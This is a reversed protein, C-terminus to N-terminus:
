EAATSADTHVVSGGSGEAVLEPVGDGTVDGLGLPGHLERTTHWLLAPAAGGTLGRLLYIRRSADTDEPDSPEQLALIDDHGDGDADAVSVLGAGDLISSEDGDLLTISSGGTVVEEDGDGDLDGAVVNCGTESCGVVETTGDGDTDAGTVALVSGIDGSAGSASLAGGGYSYASWSGSTGAVAVSGPDFDGCAVMSGAVLTSADINLGGDEDLSMRSLRYTSGNSTITYIITQGGEDCAALSEATTDGEVTVDDGSRPRTEGDEVVFNWIKLLVEGDEDELSLLDLLGDDDFDRYLVPGSLSVSYSRYSWSLSDWIENAVTGSLWRLDTTFIGVDFVGDGTADVATIPGVETTTSHNGHSFDPDGETGISRLVDLTGPELVVLEEPAAGNMDARAMEISAYPLPWKTVDDGMTYFTLDQSSAPPGVLILDDTGNADLDMMPWLVTGETAAADIEPWAGGVWGQESLSYRRISGTIESLVSIDARGDDGEDSAAVGWLPFDVELVSSTTFGWAGDGDLVEVGGAIEGTSAIALDALRDGNLDSVAIGAVTGSKPTWAAGWTYGGGARGRLALAHSSNWVVLDLVGDADIHQSWMGKVPEDLPLAAVRWAAQGAGTPVWWIESGRAVASGGTGSRAFDPDEIDEPIVAGHDLQFGPVAGSVAYGVGDAGGGVGASTGSVAITFREPGSTTVQAIGHGSVGFTVSSAVLTASQGEVRLEAAGDSPIAIGLENVLIVPVDIVGTGVGTAIVVETPDGADVAELIPEWSTTETTCGALVLLMWPKRM